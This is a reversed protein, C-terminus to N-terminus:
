NSFEQLEDALRKMARHLYVRASEPSINLIESIEQHSLGELRSLIFIEAQRQPLKAIRQTLKAQLEAVRLNGDASVNSGTPECTLPEASFKRDRRALEIAKRVTTRYLYSSWSITQADLRDWRRWIALFVEQHVDQASTSDGLVRLAVNMVLRGHTNVLQKFREKSM